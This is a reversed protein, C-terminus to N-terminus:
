RLRSQLFKARTLAGEIEPRIPCEPTMHQLSRSLIGVASGANGRRDKVPATAKQARLLYILGECLHNQFHGCNKPIDYEPHGALKSDVHFAYCYKPLQARELASAGGYRGGDQATAAGCLSIASVLALVTSKM